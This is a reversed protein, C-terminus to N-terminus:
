CDLYGFLLFCLYGSVLGIMNVVLCILCLSVFMFVLVSFDDLKVTVFDFYSIGLYWVIVCWVLGVFFTNCYDFLAVGLLLTIM